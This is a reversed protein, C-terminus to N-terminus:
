VAIEGGRTDSRAPIAISQDSRAPDSDVTLDAGVKACLWARTVVHLHIAFKNIGCRREGDHEM